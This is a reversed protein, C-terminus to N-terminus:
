KNEYTEKYYNECEPIMLEGSSIPIYYDASNNMGQEFAIEIQQKEM